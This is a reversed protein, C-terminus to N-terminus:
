WGCLGPEWQQDWMLHWFVSTVGCVCQGVCVLNVLDALRRNERRWLLPLPMWSKMELM